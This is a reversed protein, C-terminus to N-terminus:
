RGSPNWNARIEKLISDMEALATRHLFYRVM